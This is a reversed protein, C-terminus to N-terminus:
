KNRERQEVIFHLARALILDEHDDINISSLKDILVSGQNGTFLGGGRLLHSSRAAVYNGFKYFVPKEQRNTNQRHFPFIFKVLDRDKYRQNYAHSTHDLHCVTLAGDLLPDARLIAHVNGIDKPRLFPSTCEVCGVISEQGLNRDSIVARIVDDTKASDSSLQRSRDHTEAGLYEALELYASSDSSVIVRSFEGSELAKRCARELLTQGGILQLNKNPIGKSGSRAPIIAVANM